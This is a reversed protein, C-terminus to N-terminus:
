SSSTTTPRAARRARAWEVLNWPVLGVTGLFLFPGLAHMRLADLPHGHAMYAFSRTLGCGPCSVGLIRQYLCVSPIDHGFLSVATDSPHVVAAIVLIALAGLAISAHASGGGARM